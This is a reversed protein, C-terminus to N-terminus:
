QPITLRIRIDPKVKLTGMMAKFPKIGYDPQHLSLEAVLKGEVARAEVSIEKTVGHLILEGQLQHGGEVGASISSSQFTARPHQDSHLVESGIQKAIKEKDGASLTGSNEEGDQMAAVVQLSNTEFSAKVSLPEESVELEFQTVRIKLDHAIKSLLGDKLTFILCEAEAATFKPM